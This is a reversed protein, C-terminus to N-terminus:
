KQQQGEKQKIRKIQRLEYAKRAIRVPHYLVAYSVPWCLIAWLYGGVALPLLLKFPNAVLFRLYAIVGDLAEPDPPALFGSLGFLDCIFVGTKYTLYFIFPFTWPNGFLTGILGSILSARTLLSLLLLQLIQLGLFPTFSIAIGNALGAAIKYTSDGTRFLRHNYYHYLRKWGMSPWVAEKTKKAVTRRNKRKLIAM